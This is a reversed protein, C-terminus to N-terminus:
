AHTQEVVLRAFYKHRKDHQQCTDNQDILDLRRQIELLSNRGFDM